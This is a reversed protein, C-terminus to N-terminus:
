KKFERILTILGKVEEDSVGEAPKMRLKGEKDKIGEKIAKTMAEDKLGAQYKADSFDKIELKQGMKTQGKGDPGHCKACQKEYIAKAEGAYTAAASVALAVIVLLILKKMNNNKRKGM